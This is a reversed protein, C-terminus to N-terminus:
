TVEMIPAMMATADSPSNWEARQGKARSCCSAPWSPTKAASRHRGCGAGAPQHRRRSSRRCSGSPSRPPRRPASNRRHRAGDDAPKQKAVGVLDRDHRGTRAAAACPFHRFSGAWPTNSSAWIFYMSGISRGARGASGPGLNQFFFMEAAVGYGFRGPRPPRNKPSADYRAGRPRADAVPTVIRLVALDRLGGARLSRPASHRTRSRDAASPHRTM